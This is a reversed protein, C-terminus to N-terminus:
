LKELKEDYKQIWMKKRVKQKKNYTREPLDEYLKQIMKIEEESFINIIKPKSELKKIDNINKREM